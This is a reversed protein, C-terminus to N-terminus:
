VRSRPRCTVPRFTHKSARTRFIVVTWEPHRAEWTRVCLECFPPLNGRGTHWHCWLVKSGTSIADASSETWTQLEISQVQAPTKKHAGAKVLRNMIKLFYNLQLCSAPICGKFCAMLLTHAPPSQTSSGLFEFTLETNGQQVFLVVVAVAFLSLCVYMWMLGGSQQHTASLDCRRSAEFGDGRCCSVSSLCTELSPIMTYTCHFNTGGPKIRFM